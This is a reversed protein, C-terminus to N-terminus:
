RWWFDFCTLPGGEIVIEVDGRSGARARTDFQLTQQRMYAPRTRAKGLSVGDLKAEISGPAGEADYRGVLFAGLPLQARLVLPGANPATMCLHDGRGHVLAARVQQTGCRFRLPKQRECPEEALTLTLEQYLLSRRPLLASNDRARVVVGAVLLLAGGLALWSLPRRGARLRAFLPEWATTGWRTLGFFVPLAGLSLLLGLWDSAFYRYRLVLEGARAPVEMLVPDEVGQVTVTTIPLEKGGVSAHWREFAAIHFRLRSQDATNSLKVRVLEPSFELLQAQGPGTLDFPNPDYRNFRFVQLEGFTRELTYDPEAHASPSVVYQVSLAQLLEPSATMPLGDFIQSPTDGIKYMLNHDYIPALTTTHDGHFMDYAIRYHDTRSERLERAWAFVHQLDDWYRTDAEGQLQKQVYKEYLQPLAPGLLTALAASVVAWAAARQGLGRRPSVSRLLRYLQVLGFGALSFWFPKALLLCRATEIKILSPLVRELHLVGTLLDSSLVLLGLASLALYNSGRRRLACLGGLLALAQVPAPVNAFSQLEVLRSGVTALTTTAEGLDMAYASRALFPVLTTAPLAIGLALAGFLQAIRPLSPPRARLWQDFLFLPLVTAVLVLAVQHTMLAAALWLGALLVHRAGGRTVIATWHTFSLLAFSLSLSVPWVGWEVNWVWGGESFAGLELSTFWAALLGASAGFYRRAFSFAALAKFVLFAAFALAYTRTWPLQGLTLARFLSVWIEGGSPVLEDAPFGFGWFHSWGRLRGRGLMETWFHWAKFLHAPHDHSLPTKWLCAWAQFLAPLLALGCAWRNWNLVCRRERGTSAQVPGACIV